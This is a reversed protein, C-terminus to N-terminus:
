KPTLIEDRERQRDQIDKLVRLQEVKEDLTMDAWGSAQVVGPLFPSKEFAYWDRMVLAPDDYLEVASLIDFEEDASSSGSGQEERILDRILERLAQNFDLKPTEISTPGEGTLLWHISCGTANSIRRLIEADPIRGRVYFGVTGEEVGIKNGITKNTANQFAAKLRMGFDSKSSPPNRPTTKQKVSV